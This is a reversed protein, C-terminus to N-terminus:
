RVLVKTVNAEALIIYIGAPLAAKFCGDAGTKGSAALQGDANYIRVPADQLGESLQILGKAATVKLPVDNTAQIHNVVEMSVINSVASSTQISGSYCAKFEHTGENLGTAHYAVSKSEGVKVSGVAKGDIFFQVYSTSDPEGEIDATLLFANEGDATAKLSINNGEAREPRLRLLKAGHKPVTMTLEADKCTGLGKEAWVDYVEVQQGSAYGYDRLDINYSVSNPANKATVRPDCDFVYFRISTTANPQGIGSDDLAAMAKFAVISDPVSCILLSNADSSFGRDYKTNMVSMKGNGYVNTNERIINYYSNTYRKLVFDGTMPVEYGNRSIFTPNIWDGHDYNWNDGGDDVVLALTDTGEPLAIDVDVKHGDTTYTVTESGFLARDDYIWGNGADTYFLALWRDGNSPDISTWVIKGSKNQVQHANMGYAHMRLYESNTLLSTTFSDNRTMEGGFFLPSHCVGWLTMMTYQEDRTLNTNRGSNAGTYGADAVTMSIRGLPLMDCDAYNGPRYYPQWLHAENFVAKVSTWNDWLDDMMRWQNANDLCDQVYAPQTKGPSLSLVIPRGCQDIAKRLMKIEDSYFPRSMDDVKIFDVGWSAYLDVISNYYLQGYKNNRVTLNDKLWTCAPTTSAYVNSWAVGEAGKLSYNSPANLIYKPLGRMIHIGFKMGMAHISDALAKFGQNEGDKMASPFRTPSPLYRGYKDIVCDPGKSGTQQNYNGGGLSPHNAYWRIDVVVYEWGYLLLNDRQWRANQMVIKENVSSYYCDWSNWGMPPTIAWKRFDAETGDQAISSTASFHALLLLFFTQFLRKM